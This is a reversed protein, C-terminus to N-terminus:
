RRTCIAPFKADIPLYVEGEGDGPLRVAFEVM